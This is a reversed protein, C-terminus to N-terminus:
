KTRKAAAKWEAPNDTITRYLSDFSDSKDKAYERCHQKMSVSEGRKTRNDYARVCARAADNMKRPPRKKNQGSNTDAPGSSETPTPTSVQSTTGVDRLRDFYGRIYPTLEAGTWQKKLLHSPPVGARVALQMWDELERPYPEGTAAEWEQVYPAFAEQLAKIKEKFHARLAERNSEIEERANKKDMIKVREASGAPRSSRATFIGAVTAPRRPSSGWLGPL